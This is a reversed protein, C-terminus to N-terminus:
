KQDGRKQKEFQCWAPAPYILISEKNGQPYFNVVRGYHESDDENGCRLACKDGTWEESFALECAACRRGSM